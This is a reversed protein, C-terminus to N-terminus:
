EFVMSHEGRMGGRLPLGRQPGLWLFTGPRGAAGLRQSSWGISKSRTGAKRRSSLCIDCVYWVAGRLDLRLSRCRCGRDHRCRCRNCRRSCCFRFRCYKSPSGAEGHSYVMYILVVVVFVFVVVVVIVVAVIKGLERRCCVDCGYPVVYCCYKSWAAVVISGDHAQKTMVVYLCM